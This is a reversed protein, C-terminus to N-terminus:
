NECCKQNQRIVGNSACIQRTQEETIPHSFNLLLM